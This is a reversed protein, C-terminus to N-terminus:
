HILYYRVQLRRCESQFNSSNFMAICNVHDNLIQRPIWKTPWTNLRFESIVGLFWHLEVNSYTTIVIESQRTSPDVLTSKMSRGITVTRIGQINIGSTSNSLCIKRGLGADVDYILSESDCRFSEYYITFRYAAGGWLYRLIYMLAEWQLISPQAAYGGLVSTTYEIRLTDSCHTRQIPRSVSRCPDCHDTRGSTKWTGM